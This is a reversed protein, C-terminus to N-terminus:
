ISTCSGLWCHALMEQQIASKTMYGFSGTTPVNHSAQYKVLAAKTINGFYGLSIEPAVTFYGQEGLFAQLETVGNGASGVQLDSGYLISLSAQSAAQANQVFLGFGLVLAFASVIITKM